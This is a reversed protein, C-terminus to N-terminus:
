SASFAVVKGMETPQPEIKWYREAEEPLVLERYTSYLMKPSTHGLESAVRPADHIAALRYSAFSHRLGNKPWRALGGAKRVLDLKKRWNAPVVPGTMGVSPRLWERLNPQIEVIRRRASKAKQAKVEIYGRKQDVESWDLRKIEADRLGSFAGIALMPLVDPVTRQSAELLSRLQDVAFIEPPTDPLKPRATHLIPNSDIMRRRAAYSFLVGINARYNARSKPSGPLARLWNDLEEVTIAAIKRQGFDANFRALRKRLDAIYTASMGDKRKAELVEKALDAVTVNCRRIRELYDLYFAAADQITKGHKALEKGAHIIASLEGPSLGIAERGHRELTTIQRLREAEAEAKTKFFRRGKNFPRLDIYYPHTKSHPYGLVRLTPRKMAGCYARCASFTLMSVVSPNTSECSLANKMPSLSPLETPLATSQFDVHRRNSEAGLWAATKMPLIRPFVLRKQGPESQVPFSLFHLNPRAEAYHLTM